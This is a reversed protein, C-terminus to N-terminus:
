DKKGRPLALDNRGGHERGEELSANPEIKGKYKVRRKGEKERILNQAAQYWPGYQM